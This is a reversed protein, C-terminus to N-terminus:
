ATAIRVGLCVIAFFAARGIRRFVREAGFGFIELTTTGSAFVNASIKAPLASVARL